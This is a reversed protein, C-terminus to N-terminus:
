HSIFTKSHTKLASQSHALYDCLWYFEGEGMSPTQSLPHLCTPAFCGSQIEKHDNQTEKDSNQM